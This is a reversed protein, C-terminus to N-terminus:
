QTSAGGCPDMKGPTAAQCLWLRPGHATAKTIGFVPVSGTFSNASGKRSLVDGRENDAIGRHGPV